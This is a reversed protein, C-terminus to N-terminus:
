VSSPDKENKQKRAGRDPAGHVEASELHLLIPVASSVIARGRTDSRVRRHVLSDLNKESCGQM